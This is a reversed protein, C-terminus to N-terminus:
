LSGRAVLRWGIVRERDENGLTATIRHMEATTLTATSEILLDGGIDRIRFTIM